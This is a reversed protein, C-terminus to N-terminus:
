EKLFKGFGSELDVKIQFHEALITSLLGRHNANTIIAYICMEGLAINPVVVTLRGTMKKGSGFSGDELWGDKRNGAQQLINKNFAQNYEIKLAAHM